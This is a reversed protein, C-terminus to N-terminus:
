SLLQLAKKASAALLAEKGEGGSTSLRELIPRMIDRLRALNEVVAPADKMDRTNKGVQVLLSCVNLRVEIPYRVPSGTDELISVLMDTPQSPLQIRNQGPTPMVPSSAESSTSSSSSPQDSPVAATAIDHVPSASIAKLTLPAGSRQSAVLSLAVVAENVLSPFRGSRSLLSTLASACESTTVLKFCDQRKKGKEFLTDQSSTGLIPSVVPSSPSDENSWLSRIVNVLVRTGESKIHLSESRAVLSLIQKLASAGEEPPLVTAFTNEVNANCLFKVVGIASVQVVEAMADTKQDWIGCERIRTVLDASTLSQQVVQSHTAAQALHRLLGLVGHKLRIDISKSLLASSALLDTLCYPASVFAVAHQERRSLNGLSLSACIALDDRHFGSDESSPEGAVFSRLWDVMKNVFLGGPQSPNSDDWLVEENSEEAAVEVIVKIVAAKCTDLVKQRRTDEKSWLPHYNGYQIFDLLISLCPIGGHEAPFALGRALSLRVDEVDLGLSEILTSAEGLLDLDTQVFSADSSGSPNSPLQFPPLYTKFYPVFFPLAEAGFIHVTEENVERLESILRWVWNSLGQRTAWEESPADKDATTMWFGPPYAGAGLKLITLGAAQRNLQVKIPDFGLSANLLVGVATRVVQLHILQLDLLEGPKVCTAYAQLLSIVAQPFSADLLHGRNEDHNLCLNAGVRLIQLIVPALEITPISSSPLTSAFLDTLTQPLTTRGLSTHNDELGNQVRLIDAISQALSEIEAFTTSSSDAAVKAALDELQAQLQLCSM